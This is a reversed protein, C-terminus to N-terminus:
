NSVIFHAIKNSVSSSIHFIFLDKAQRMDSRATTRVKREIKLKNRFSVRVFFVVKERQDFLVILCLCPTGHQRM